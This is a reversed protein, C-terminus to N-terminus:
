PNIFLSSISANDHIIRIAKAMLDAVTLVKIKKAGEKVPLTDTVALETLVSNAINDYANGSLVGHTIVARVSKAGKDMILEAARCLTGGTDIMDDVLVVDKDKVDGILRM